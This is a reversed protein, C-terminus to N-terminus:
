DFRAFSHSRKEKLNVIKRIKDSIRRRDQNDDAPIIEEEKDEMPDELPEEKKKKAKALKYRKKTSVGAALIKRTAGCFQGFCKEGGPMTVSNSPNM